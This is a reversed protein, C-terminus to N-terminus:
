FQSVMSPVEPAALLRIGAEPKLRGQGWRPSFGVWQTPPRLERYASPATEKPCLFGAPRSGAPYDDRRVM